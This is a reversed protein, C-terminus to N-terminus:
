HKNCNSDINNQYFIADLAILKELGNKKNLFSEKLEEINPFTEVDKERQKIMMEIAWPEIDIHTLSPNFRSIDIDTHYAAGPICLALRRRREESLKKFIFHDHPHNESTFEKWVDIDEKLTKVKSGFTMCTSITYRWHSSETKIVKSIEGGDYGRSYKDPHDYLTVYDSRRIGEELLKPAHNLHLYDDECFYILEDDPNKIALDLAVRFSGANGENCTLTPVGTDKLMKLTERNCNDAIVLLSVQDSFIIKEFAFCFNIFCVEKTAGMLKTKKYSQDSIRYYLKM